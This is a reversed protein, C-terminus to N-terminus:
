LLGEARVLEMVTAESAHAGVGVEFHSMAGSPGLLQTVPAIGRITSTAWIEDVDRLGEVPITKEEVPFGSQPLHEILLSRTVGPLIGLSLPPTFVRDGERWFISARTSEGLLGHMTPMIADHAGNEQAKLAALEYSVRSITKAAGLPPPPVCIESFWMTLARDVLPKRPGGLRVGGEIMWWPEEDTGLVLIRIGTWREPHADIWDQIARRLLEPSPMELLLLSLSQKLRKLHAEIQFAGRPYVCLTEYVGFGRLWGRDGRPFTVDQSPILKGM